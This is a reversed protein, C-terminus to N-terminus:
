FWGETDDYKLDFSESDYIPEDDSSGNINNVSTLNCINGSSGVNVIRHFEGSEGVLTITIDGSDTDVFITGDDPAITADSTIVTIGSIQNISVGSDKLDGESDFVIINDEDAAPVKNAKTSNDDDQSRRWGSVSRDDRTRPLRQLPEVM